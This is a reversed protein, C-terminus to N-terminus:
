WSWDVKFENGNVETPREITNKRFLNTTKEDKAIQAAWTVEETKFGQMNYVGGKTMRLLYGQSTNEQLFLLLPFLIEVYKKRVVNVM